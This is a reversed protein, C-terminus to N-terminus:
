YFRVVKRIARVPVRLEREAPKHMIDPDDMDVEAEIVGIGKPDVHKSEMTKLLTNLNGMPNERHKDANLFAYYLAYTDDKTKFIEDPDGETIVNKNLTRDFKELTFKWRGHEETICTVGGKMVAFMASGGEYACGGHLAKLFKLTEAVKHEEEAWRLIQQPKIEGAVVMAVEKFWRAIELAYKQDYTFSIADNGAKDSVSGGLGLGGEESRVAQFGGNALDRAYISAHYLRELKEHKPLVADQDNEMQAAWERFTAIKTKLLRLAEMVHHALTHFEKFLALVEAQEPQEGFDERPIQDVRSASDAYAIFRKKDEFFNDVLEEVYGPTRRDMFSVHRGIKEHIAQCTDAYYHLDYEDVEVQRTFYTYSSVDDKIRDIRESIAKMRECVKLKRVTNQILSPFSKPPVAIAERFRTAVRQALPDV